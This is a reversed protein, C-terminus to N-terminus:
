HRIHKAEIAQLSSKADEIIRLVAQQRKNEIQKYVCYGLIGVVLACVPIVYSKM